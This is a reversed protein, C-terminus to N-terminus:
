FMKGDKTLMHINFIRYLFQLPTLLILTFPSQTGTTDERSNKYNNTIFKFFSTVNIFEPFNSFYNLTYCFDMLFENMNARLFPCRPVILFIWMLMIYKM